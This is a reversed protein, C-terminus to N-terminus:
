DLSTWAAGYEDTPDRYMNHAHQTADGGLSQPSFELLVTPGTVRFYAAGSEDTPGFWAFHVDDLDHEVEALKAALDDANLLVGLRAEVLALLLTRQAVDMARGALGEPPLTLGDRGPGLVLDIPDAGLVAEDRQSRDLADLLASAADLEDAVLRVTRGDVDFTLPQGGALTPSLTLHPGVVTANIALHHGGFQLMWPEVTSPTGLFSAHYHDSGFTLRPGRSEGSAQEAALVDDAAMQGRVREVGDPGLVADLLAMLAARQSGDLEGWAVGAREVLDVPLNSWRARQEADDFDFTAAARREDDLAALFADAAAVIAVRRAEVTSPEGAALTPTQASVPPPRAGLSSAIALAAAVAPLTRTRPM